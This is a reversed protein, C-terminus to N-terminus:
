SKKEGWGIMINACREGATKEDLGLATKLRPPQRSSSFFTTVDKSFYDIPLYPTGSSAFAPKGELVAQNLLAGPVAQAVKDAASAADPGTINTKLFLHQFEPNEVSQEPHKLKALLQDTLIIKFQSHNDPHKKYVSLIKSLYIDLDQRGPHLGLRLHLNPHYPLEALLISLFDEDIATPQTTSSVFALSQELTVNLRRRIEEQAKQELNKESFANDISLHGIIHIRDPGFDAAAATLPLAWAINPKNKLKPLHDWLCHSEPKFMFEYAMLAPLENLTEAIQFPIQNDVSPVGFYLSDIQQSHIYEAICNLQEPNLCGDLPQTSHPALINSLTTKQVGLTSSTSEIRQQAADTLAILVM